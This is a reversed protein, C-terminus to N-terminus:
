AFREKLRLFPREFFRHSAWAVLITLAFAVAGVMVHFPARGGPLVVDALAIRTWELILPHWVYFGFSITGLAALPRWSLAGSWAGGPLCCWVAAVSMWDLAAIRAGALAPESEIRWPLMSHVVYIAPITLAVWGSAAPLVGRRAARLEAILAGAAFSHAM